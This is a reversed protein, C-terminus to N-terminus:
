ESVEGAGLVLVNAFGVECGETEVCESTLSVRMVECM